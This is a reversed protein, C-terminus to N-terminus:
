EALVLRATATESGIRVTAVYVGSPLRSGDVGRGDWDIEYHSGSVEFRKEYVRRGSAGFIRLTGESNSTSRHVGFLRVAGRSPNPSAVLSSETSPSGGARDDATAVFQKASFPTTPTGSIVSGSLTVGPPLASSLSFALADGDADTCFTMLDLYVPVGVVWTQDPVTTWIPATARARRVPTSLTAAGVLAIAAAGLLKLFGRRSNKGSADGPPPAITNKV